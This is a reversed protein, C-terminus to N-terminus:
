RYIHSSVSSNKLWRHWNRRQRHAVSFTWLWKSVWTLWCGVATFGKSLQSHTHTHTNCPPTAQSWVSTSRVPLSFVKWGGAAGLVHDAAVCQILRVRLVQTPPVWLGPWDEPSGVRPRLVKSLVPYTLVSPLPENLNKLNVTQHDFWTLYWVHHPNRRWETEHPHNVTVPISLKFSATAMISLNM